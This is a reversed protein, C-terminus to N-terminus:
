AFVMMAPPKSKTMIRQVTNRSFPPPHQRLAPASKSKEKLEAVSGLSTRLFAQRRPADFTFGNDDACFWRSLLGLL